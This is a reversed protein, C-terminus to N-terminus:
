ADLKGIQPREIGRVEQKDQMMLDEWENHGRTQKYQTDYHESLHCTFLTRIM